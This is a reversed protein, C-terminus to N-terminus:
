SNVPDKLRVCGNEIYTHKLIKHNVQYNPTNKYVTNQGPLFQPM